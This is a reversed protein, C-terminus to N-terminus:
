LLDDCSITNVKHHLGFACLKISKGVGHYLVLLGLCLCLFCTCFGVVCPPPARQCM